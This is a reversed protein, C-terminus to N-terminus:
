RLMATNSLHMQENHIKGACSHQHFCMLYKGNYLCFQIKLM